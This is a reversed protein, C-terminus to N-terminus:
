ERILVWLIDFVHLSLCLVVLREEDSGEDFRCQLPSFFPVTTDIIQSNPLGPVVLVRFALAYYGLVNM